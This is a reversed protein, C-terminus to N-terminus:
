CGCAQRTTSRAFGVPYARDGQERSGEKLKYATCCCNQHHFTMDVWRVNHTIHRSLSLSYRERNGLKIQFRRDVLPLTLGAAVRLRINKRESINLSFEVLSESSINGCGDKGIAGQHNRLVRNQFVDTEDRFPTRRSFYCTKNECEGSSTGRQGAEFPLM